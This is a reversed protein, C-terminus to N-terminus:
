GGAAGDTVLVRAFRAQIEDADVVVAPLHSAESERVVRSQEEGGGMGAQKLTIRLIVRNNVNDLSSCLGLGEQRGSRM